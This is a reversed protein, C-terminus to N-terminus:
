KFASRQVAIFVAFGAAIATGAIMAATQRLTSLPYLGTAIMALRGAVVMLLLALALTAARRKMTLIALGAAAYFAGIGASVYSAVAGEATHLGFFSHTFGTIIEAFGFVIMLSSAITISLKRPSAM